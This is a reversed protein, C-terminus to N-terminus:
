DNMRLIDWILDPEFGRSMAYNAIKYNKQLKNKIKLTKEKDEIIKTLTKIYETDDIQSLAKRICYESIKRYKLESKIKIKGWKKIRFRGGAFAIAFREENIFGEQILESIGIEVEKQHLGLDYLKDRVEQQSREQYVCYKRLKELASKLTHVKVARVKEM